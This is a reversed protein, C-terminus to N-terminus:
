LAKQLDKVKDLREWSFEPRGFHGYCATKQYIPKLLELTKIIEQPTLDFIKRVVEILKDEPIKSTGATDIMISVPDPRGIVYAMQLLCKESLGAAVINKAVYRAM